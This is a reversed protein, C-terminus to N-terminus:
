AATEDAIQEFVDALEGPMGTAGGGGSGGSGGSGQDDSVRMGGPCRVEHAVPTTSSMADIREKLGGIAEIRVGYNEGVKVAHGTGVVVNNVMLDLPQDADKILEVIAGPQWKLVEDTALRREAIRVIVPVVLDLISALDSPM